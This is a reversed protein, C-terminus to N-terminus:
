HEDAHLEEKLDDQESGHVGSKRKGDVCFPCWKRYPLHVRMHDDWEARGPKVVRKQGKIIRSEESAMEETAEESKGEELEEKSGEHM